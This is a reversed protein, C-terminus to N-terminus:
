HSLYRSLVFVVGDVYREMYREGESNILIGGEGRTGETILCGAGYIGTPHFQVFELDSQQLGARSAMAGGDGTCAHASTASFYCRGFGGTALVTNNCNFRHLTGDEMCLAVVGVCEGEDNMILDLAFYEIFYDTDYRLSKRFSSRCDSLLRLLWGGM